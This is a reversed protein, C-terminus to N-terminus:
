SKKEHELLEYIAKRICASSGVLFNAQRCKESEFILDRIKKPIRNDLVFSSSPQSFFLKSDIDIDNAFYIKNFSGEKIFKEFSFHLSSKECSACQVLYVYCIKNESWNFHGAAELFYSVHNRKCFPCNYKFPDIFYKKDLHSLDM